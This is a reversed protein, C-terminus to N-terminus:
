ADSGADVSSKASPYAFRMLQPAGRLFYLGVLFAVVFAGFYSALPYRRPMGHFLLLAAASYLYMVSAFLLLIGITRIAVGFCERATM